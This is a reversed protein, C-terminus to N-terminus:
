SCFDWNDRQAKPLYPYSISHLLGLWLQSAWLEPTKIKRVGFIYSLITELPKWTAPPCGAKALLPTAEMVMDEAELVIIVHARPSFPWCRGQTTLEELETVVNQNHPYQKQIFFGETIHLARRSTRCMFPVRLPCRLAAEARCRRGHWSQFSVM